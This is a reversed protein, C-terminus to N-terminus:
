INTCNEFNVSNFEIGNFNSVDNIDFVKSNTESVDMIVATIFLEGSGGVPSTFMTYDDATSILKSNGFGVGRITLGGAPVEIPTDGMDVVGDVVYVFDSTPNAIDDANCVIKEAKPQLSRTSDTDSVTIIGINDTARIIVVDGVVLGSSSPFYDDGLAISLTDNTNYTYLNPSNSNLQGISSLGTQRFM